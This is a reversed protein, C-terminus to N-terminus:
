ESEILENSLNELLEDFSKTIVVVLDYKEVISKNIVIQQREKRKTSIPKDICTMTGWGTSVKLLSEILRVSKYQNEVSDDSKIDIYVKM